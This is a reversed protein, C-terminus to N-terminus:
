KISGSAAPIPGKPYVWQVEMALNLCTTETLAGALAPCPHAAASALLSAIALAVLLNMMINVSVILLNHHGNNTSSSFFLAFYM